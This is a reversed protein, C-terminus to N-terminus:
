FGPEGLGTDSVQNDICLKHYINLSTFVEKDKGWKHSIAMNTVLNIRRTGSTSCFIDVREFYM